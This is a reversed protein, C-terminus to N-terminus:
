IDRYGKKTFGVESREKSDSAAIEGRDAVARRGDM